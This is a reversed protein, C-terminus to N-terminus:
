NSATSAKTFVSGKCYAKYSRHRPNKKEIVLSIFLNCSSEARPKIELESGKAANKVVDEIALYKFSSRCHIRLITRSALVEVAGITGKLPQHFLNKFLLNWLM